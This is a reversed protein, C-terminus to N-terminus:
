LYVAPLDVLSQNTRNTKYENVDNINKSLVSSALLGDFKFTFNDKTELDTNKAFSWFIPLQPNTNLNYFRDIPAEKYNFAPNTLRSNVPDLYHNCQGLDQQSLKTVNIPNLNGSKCKSIVVNRNSLVSDIDILKQSTAVPHGAITSVGNGMYSPRPGFGTYCQNKNWISNTDLRYIMPDVSTQIRTQYACEDYPLLSSHGINM